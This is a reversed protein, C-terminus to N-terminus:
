PTFFPRLPEAGHAYPHPSKPARLWLPSLPLPVLSLSPIPMPPSLCLSSTSTCCPHRLPTPSTEPHLPPGPRPPHVPVLTPNPVESCLPVSVSPCLHLPYELVPICFPSPSVNPCPRLPAPRRKTRRPTAIKKPLSILRPGDSTLTQTGRLHSGCGRSTSTCVTTKRRRVGRGGRRTGRRGGPVGGVPGGPAGSGLGRPEGLSPGSARLM